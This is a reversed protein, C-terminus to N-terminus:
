SAFVDSGSELPKLIHILSLSKEEKPQEESIEAATGSVSSISEATETEPAKWPEVDWGGIKKVNESIYKRSRDFGWYILGGLLGGM